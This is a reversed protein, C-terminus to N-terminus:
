RPPPTTTAGPPTAGRLVRPEIMVIGWPKKGTQIVNVVRLSRTDVISVTNSLGNAVCLTKGDSSLALGWPRKGVTITAVLQRRAADIVSVTGTGPLTTYRTAAISSARRSTLPGRTKCVCCLVHANARARVM